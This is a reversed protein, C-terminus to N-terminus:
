LPRICGSRYILEMELTHRFSGNKISRGCVMATRVCLCAGTYKALCSPLRHHHNPMVKIYSSLLLIAAMNQNFIWKSIFCINFVNKKFCMTEDNEGSAEGQRTTRLSGKAVRPGNMTSLGTRNAELYRPLRIHLVHGTLPQGDFTWLLAARSACKQM